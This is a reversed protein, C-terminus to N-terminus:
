SLKVLYFTTARVTTASPNTELRLTHEERYIHYTFSYLPNLVVPLVAALPALFQILRSFWILKSGWILEYSMPRFASTLRNSAIAAQGIYVVVTNEFDIYLMLNWMSSSTVWLSFYFLYICRDKVAM